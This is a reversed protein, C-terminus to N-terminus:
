RQPGRFLTQREALPASAENRSDVGNYRLRPREAELAEQWAARSDPSAWDLPFLTVLSLADLSGIAYLLATAGSDDRVIVTRAVIQDTGAGQVPGLEDVWLVTAAGDAPDDVFPQAVAAVRELPTSDPASPAVLWPAFAEGPLGFARAVGGGLWRDRKRGYPTDVTSLLYGYVHLLGANGVPWQADLAAITHLEAFLAESIVPAGTNEDVVTSRGWQSFRNAAADARIQDEM